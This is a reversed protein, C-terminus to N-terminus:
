SMEMEERGSDLDLRSLKTPEDQSDIKVPNQFPRARYPLFLRHIIVIQINSSLVFSAAQQQFGRSLGAAYTSIVDGDGVGYNIM